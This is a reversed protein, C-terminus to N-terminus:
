VAQTAPELGAPPVHLHGPTPQEETPTRGHDGAARGVREQGAYPRQERGQRVGLVVERGTTVVEGPPPVGRRRLEREDPLVQPM